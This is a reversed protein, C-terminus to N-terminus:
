EKRFKMIRVNWTGGDVSLSTGCVPCSRNRSTELWQKLCTTHVPHCCSGVTASANSLSDLCISFAQETNESCSINPLERLLVDIEHDEPSRSTRSPRSPARTPTSEVRPYSLPRDRMVLRANSANRASPFTYLSSLQLGTLREVNRTRRLERRRRISARIRRNLSSICSYIGFCLAFLLVAGFPAYFAFIAYNCNGQDECSNDSSHIGGM